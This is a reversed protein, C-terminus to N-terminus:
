SSIAPAEPAPEASKTGEPAKPFMAQLGLLGVYTTVFVAAAVASFVARDFARSALAINAFLLGIEGHPVMGMGIVKKKLGWRIAAYGALFKGLVAALALLVGALVVQRHYGDSLQFARFDIEAGLFVFAVSAPVGELHGFDERIKRAHASRGILLGALLAGMTSVSGVQVAVWALGLATTAALATLLGPIELKSARTVLWPILYGGPLLLSLLFAYTLGSRWAVEALTVHEGEALAAVGGLLVLGLITSLLAAGLIVPSEPEDLRNLDALLRATLGLSTATIAAGAALAVNSDLGAISCALYGLTLSLFVGAGAVATAPGLAGLFNRYDLELGVRFLFLVIGVQAFAQLGQDDTNVLAFVSRGLLIGAFMEGLLPPLGLARAAVALTKACALMVALVGLVYTLELNLM